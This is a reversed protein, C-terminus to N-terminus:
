KFNEIMENIPQKAKTNQEAEIKKVRYKEVIKELYDKDEPLCYFNKSYKCVQKLPNAILIYNDYYLLNNDRLEKVYNKISRECLGTLNSM